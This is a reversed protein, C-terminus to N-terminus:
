ASAGKFRDILVDLDRRDFLVRSGISVKQIEGDHALQKMARLSIGLYAAAGAYPLLRREFTPLAKTM